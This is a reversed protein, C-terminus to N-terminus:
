AELHLNTYMSFDSPIHESVKTPSSIKPNYKCGDSEEIIFEVDAYIIFTAKDSKKYQNFELMKISWLSLIVNCIIFIVM